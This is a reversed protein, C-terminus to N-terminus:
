HSSQRRHILNHTAVPAAEGSLGPTNAQDQTTASSPVPQKNQENSSKFPAFFLNNVSAGAIFAFITIMLVFPFALKM